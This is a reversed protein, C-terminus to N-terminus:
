KAPKSNSSMFFLSIKSKPVPVPLNDIADAKKFALLTILM